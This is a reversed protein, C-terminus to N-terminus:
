VLVLVLALAPVRCASGWGSGAALWCSLRGPGAPWDCDASAGSSRGGPRRLRAGGATGRVGDLCRGMWDVYRSRVIYTRLYYCTGHTRHCARDADDPRNRLGGPELTTSQATSM